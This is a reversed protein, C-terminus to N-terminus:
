CNQGKYFGPKREAYREMYLPRIQNVDDEPM